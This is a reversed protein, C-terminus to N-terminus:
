GNADTATCQVTNAGLALTAPSTPACTVSSSPGTFRVTATALGPATNTTVDARPGLLVPPAKSPVCDLAAQIEDQRRLLDTNDAIAKATQARVQNAFASLQNCAIKSQGALISQKAADLKDLLGQQVAPDVSLAVVGTRLLALQESASLVTITFTASTSHSAADMATCTVTTAGVAFRTGSAPVCILSTPRVDDTAVAIFSVVAGHSSTANTTAAAPLTLSPPAADTVANAGATGLLAIALLGFGLPALVAGVKGQM